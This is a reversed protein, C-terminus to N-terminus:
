RDSAIVEPFFDCCTRAIGRSWVPLPVTANCHIKEPTVKLESYESRSDAVITEDDNLSNQVIISNSFYYVFLSSILATLLIPFVMLTM